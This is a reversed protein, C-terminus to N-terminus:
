DWVQSVVRMKKAREEPINRWVELCYNYLEIEPNVM